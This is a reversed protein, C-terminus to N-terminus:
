HLPLRKEGEKKESRGAQVYVGKTKNLSVLSHPVGGCYKSWFFFFSVRVLSWFGFLLLSCSWKFFVLRPGRLCPCRSSVDSVFCLELLSRLGGFCLEFFWLSGGQVCALEGQVLAGGGPHICASWKFVPCSCCSWSVGTLGTMVVPWVLAWCTCLVLVWVPWVPSRSRDSRHVVSGLFPEFGGSFRRFADLLGNWAWVEGRTPLAHILGFICFKWGLAEWISLIWFLISCM